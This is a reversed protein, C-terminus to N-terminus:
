LARLHSTATNTGALDRAPGTLDQTTQRAGGTQAAVAIFRDVVMGQVGTAIPVDIGLQSSSVGAITLDGQWASNLVIDGRRWLFTPDGATYPIAINSRNPVNYVMVGSAKTMDVPKHISFQAKYEVKGNPQRPALTVDTIIANFRTTPDIEGTATGRLLEYNGVTGFP